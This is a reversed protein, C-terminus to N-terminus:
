KKRQSLWQDYSHQINAPPTIGWDNCFEVVYVFSYFKKVPLSFTQGNKRYVIRNYDNWYEDSLKEFENDNLFAILDSQTFGELTM